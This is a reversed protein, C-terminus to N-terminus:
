LKHVSYLGTLCLAGHALGTRPQRLSGPRSPRSDDSCRALRWRCCRTRCYTSADMAEATGAGGGRSRNTPRARFNLGSALLHLQSVPLLTMHPRAGGKVLAGAILRAHVGSGYIVANKMRVYETCVRRIILELPGSRTLLLAFLSAEGRKEEDYTKMHTKERLPKRGCLDRPPAFSVNTFSTEGAYCVNNHAGTM